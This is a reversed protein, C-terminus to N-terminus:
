IVNKKSWLYSSYTYRKESKVELVEHEIYSKHLLLDGASPHYSINLKPYNIEGGDFNNLYLVVGYKKSFRKHDFEDLDKHKNMNNGQLICNFQGEGIFLSYAINEKIKNEIINRQLLSEKNLDYVLINDKRVIYRANKLIDVINKCNDESMFKKVVFIGEEINKINFRDFLM